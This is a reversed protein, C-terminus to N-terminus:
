NYLFEISDKQDMRNMYDMGGYYIHSIFVTKNNEDITYLIVYNKIVMRRYVRELEDFKTIKVFIKPNYKLKLVEEEFKNMLNKAAEDAYLENLLYDYIKNIEKYATPTIIVKYQNAGTNKDWSRLHM